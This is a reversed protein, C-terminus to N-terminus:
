GAKIHANLKEEVTEYCAECAYRTEAARSFAIADEKKMLEDCDFCRCYAELMSGCDECRGTDHSGPKLIDRCSECWDAEDEAEVFTGWDISRTELNMEDAIRQLVYEDRDAMEEALRKVFGSKDYLKM